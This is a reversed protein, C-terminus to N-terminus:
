GLFESEAIAEKFFDVVEEISADHVGKLSQTLIPSPLINSKELSVPKAVAVVQQALVAAGEGYLGAEELVSTVRNLLEYAQEQSTIPPYAELWEPLTFLPTAGLRALYFNTDNMAFMLAIATKLARGSRIDDRISMAIKLFCLLVWYLTDSQLQLRAEDTDPDAAKPVGFFSTGPFVPPDPQNEKVKWQGERIYAPLDARGVDNFFALNQQATSFRVYHGEGEDVILKVIEIARQRKEEDLADAPLQQLSTLIGVYMGDLGEKTSRSPREVDVYWQLQSNSLSQLYFPIQFRRGILAARGVQIPEGLLRLVENVWRLHRMEDIAIQFIENAGKWLRFERLDVDTPQEKPADISYYGYLYQVALAHEVTALYSLETKITELDLLPGMPPTEPVFAQGCERGNVVARLQEWDVMMEAYDIERSRRAEYSNAIDETQPEVDWNKRQFNLYPYQGDESSNVDPKNSAWYFCQCDRFDYTWPTCLTRTLEGPLYVDPSLVGQENLYPSRQAVLIAFTWPSTGEQQVFTETEGSAEWVAQIATKAAEINDGPKPPDVGIAIAVKGPFLAEVIRWAYLGGISAQPKPAGERTLDITPPDAADQDPATHGKILWLFLNRDVDSDELGMSKWVEALDTPTLAALRAGDGRYVEFYLGPFFYKQINRADMELGPYSNHVGDEPRSVTPNGPVIYDARATLNRPFIKWEQPDQPAEGVRTPRPPQSM